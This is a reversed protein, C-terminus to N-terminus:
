ELPNESLDTIFLNCATVVADLLVMQEPSLFQEIKYRWRGVYKCTTELLFVLKPIWTKRGGHAM